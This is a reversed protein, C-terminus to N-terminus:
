AKEFLKITKGDDQMSIEYHGNELLKVFDRGDKGIVEVRNIINKNESLADIIIHIVRRPTVYRGSDEKFSHKDTLKIAEERTM